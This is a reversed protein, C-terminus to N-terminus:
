LGFRLRFLIAAEEHEFFARSIWGTENGLGDKRFFVFFQWRRDCRGFTENLFITAEDHSVIPDMLVIEYRWRGWPRFVVEM